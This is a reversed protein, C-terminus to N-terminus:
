EKLISYILIVKGSGTRGVVGIKKGGYFTCTIGHLVLPSHESYRIQMFDM